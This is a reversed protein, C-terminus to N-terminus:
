MFTLREERQPEGPDLVLKEINKQVCMELCPFSLSLILHPPTLYYPILNWSRSLTKCVMFEDVKKMDMMKFAPTRLGVGTLSIDGLNWHVCRPFWLLKNATSNFRKKGMLFICSSSTCSSSLHGCTQVGHNLLVEARLPLCNEQHCFWFGYVSFCLWKSPGRQGRLPLLM